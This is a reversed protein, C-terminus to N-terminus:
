HQLYSLVAVIAQVAALVIGVAAVFRGAGSVQNTFKRSVEAHVVERLPEMYPRGDALAM